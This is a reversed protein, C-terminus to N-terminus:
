KENYRYTAIKYQRDNIIKYFKRVRGKTDLKYKYYEDDSGPGGMYFDKQQPKPLNKIQRRKLRGNNYYEFTKIEKSNDEKDIISHSFLLGDKYRLIHEDEFVASRGTAPRLYYAKVKYKLISDGINKTLRTVISDNDNLIRCQYIIRNGDYKYIYKFTTIQEQNNLYSTHTDFIWNNKNDYVFRKKWILHRRIFNEQSVVRGLSDVTLISYGGRGGSGNFSKTKISIVNPYLENYYNGGFLQAKLPIPFLIIILGIIAILITKQM